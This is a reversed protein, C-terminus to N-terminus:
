KNSEKNLLIHIQNGKRKDRYENNSNQEIYQRIPPYRKVM